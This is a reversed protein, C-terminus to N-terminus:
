RYVNQHLAEATGVADITKNCPILVIGKFLECDVVVMLADFGKSEPLDMIFDASIHSFPRSNPETPIPQMSLQMPHTNVKSKQCKACGKVYNETFALMGDWFWDRRAIAFMGQVGPHAMAPTDHCLSIVEQRLDNNSPVYIRNKYLILGDQVDWDALTTHVFGTGKFSPVKGQKLTDIM